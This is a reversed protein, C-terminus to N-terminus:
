ESFQTEKARRGASLLAPRWAQVSSHLSQGIKSFISSCFLQVPEFLTRLGTLLFAEKLIKRGLKLM